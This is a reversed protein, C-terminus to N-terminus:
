DQFGQRRSGAAVSHRSRRFPHHPMWRLFALAGRRGGPMAGVFLAVGFLVNSALQFTWKVQSGLARGPEAYAAIMVVWAAMVGLILVPWLTRRERMAIAACLLGCLAALTADLYIQADTGTKYNWVKTVLWMLALFGCVCRNSPTSFLAAIMFVAASALGFSIATPGM